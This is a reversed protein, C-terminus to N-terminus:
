QWGSSGVVARQSHHVGIRWSTEIEIWRASSVRSRCTLPVYVQARFRARQWQACSASRAGSPISISYRYFNVPDSLPAWQIATHLAVSVHPGFRVSRRESRARARGGRSAHEVSAYERWARGQARRGAGCHHLEGVPHLAAISRAHRILAGTRQCTSSSYMVLGKKISRAEDVSRAIAKLRKRELSCGMVIGLEHEVKEHKCEAYVDRSSESRRVNLRTGETPHCLLKLNLGVM